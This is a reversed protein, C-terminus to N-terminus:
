VRKRIISLVYFHSEYRYNIGFILIHVSKQGLHLCKLIFLIIDRKEKWKELLQRLNSFSTINLQCWIPMWPLSFTSAAAFNARTWFIRGKKNRLCIVIKTLLKIWSQSSRSFLSLFRHETLCTRTYYYSSQLCKRSLLYHKGAQTKFMSAKSMREQNYFLHHKLTNCTNSGGRNQMYQDM